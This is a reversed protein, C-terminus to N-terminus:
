VFVMEFLWTECRFPGFITYVFGDEELVGDVFAKICEGVFVVAMCLLLTAALVLGLLFFITVFPLLFPLLGFAALIKGTIERLM